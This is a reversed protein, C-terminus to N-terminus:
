TSSPRPPRRRAARGAASSASDARDLHPAPPTVQLVAALANRTGSPDQSSTHVTWFGDEEPVAVCAQTEM